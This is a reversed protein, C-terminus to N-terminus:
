NRGVGQWLKQQRLLPHKYWRRALGLGERTGVVLRQGRGGVGACESGREQRVFGALGETWRLLKFGVSARVEGVEAEGCSVSVPSQSTLQRSHGWRSVRLPQPGRM